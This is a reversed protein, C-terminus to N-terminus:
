RTGEDEGRRGKRGGRIVLNSNAEYSYIEHQKRQQENKDSGSGGSM